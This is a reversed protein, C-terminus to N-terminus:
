FPYNWFIFLATSNNIVKYVSDVQDSVEKYDKNEKVVLNLYESYSNIGVYNSIEVQRVEFDNSKSFTYFNLHSLEEPITPIIVTDQDQSDFVITWSYRTEFNSQNNIYVQGVKHEVGDKTLSITNQNQSYDLNWNPKSYSTLPVGTRETIYDNTSIRHRYNNFSNNLSYNAIGNGISGFFIEHFSDTTFALENDYGYLTLFINQNSNTLEVTKQEVNEVSFNNIDLTYDNPFPKAIKEYSYDGTNSNIAYVYSYQTEANSDWIPDYSNAFFENNSTIGDHDIANGRISTFDPFGSIPYQLGTQLVNSEKPGFLDIRGPTDRTLNQISYLSNNDGNDYNLLTLTFTDINLFEGNSHFKVESTSNTIQQTSIHTGDAGSIFAWYEITSQQILNDPVELILLIRKNEVTIEYNSSNGLNDIAIFKFTANGVTYNEPDFDFKLDSINDFFQVQQDNFLVEVSAVESYADTIMPEFSFLKDIIQGEAIANIVIEPGTNDVVFNQSITSINGTLDTAVIKIENNGDELTSTKIISEYTADTIDAINTENIFVTVNAIGADDTVEFTVPNDDGGIIIDNELSINTISPMTNDIFVTEETSSANGAADSATVKLTHEGTEFPTVDIDLEFPASNDENVKQNDIFVEVKTVGNDDTANIKIELTNSIRIPDTSSNASLDNLTLMINTPATTDPPLADDSGCSNLLALLIICLACALYTNTKMM